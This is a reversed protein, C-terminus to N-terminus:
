LQSPFGELQAALANAFVQLATSDAIMSVTQMRQEPPSLQFTCAWEGVEGEAIQIKLVPELFDSVFASRQNQAMGQVANMWDELEYRLLFAGQHTHSAEPTELRVHCILWEDYRTCAFMSTEWRIVELQLHEQGNRSALIAPPPAEPDPGPHESIAHDTKTTANGPLVTVPAKARGNPASLPEPYFQDMRVLAQVLQGQGILQDKWWAQVQSTVRRPTVETVISQIKIEAGIPAPALHKVNVHHGVGEEGPELYPLIHQRAAWEMHEIMSTTGYLPHVPKGLLSARMSDDVTIIIEAKDGEVLGSRM